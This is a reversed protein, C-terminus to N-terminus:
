QPQRRRRPPAASLSCSKHSSQAPLRPPLCARLCSTALRSSRTRSRTPSRREHRTAAVALVAVKRRAKVTEEVRIV